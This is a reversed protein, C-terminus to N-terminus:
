LQQIYGPNQIVKSCPIHEPLQAHIEIKLAECMLKRLGMKLLGTLTQVPAFISIPYRIIPSSLRLSHPLTTHQM